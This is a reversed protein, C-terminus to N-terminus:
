DAASGSDRQESKSRQETSAACCTLSGREAMAARQRWRRQLTPAVIAVPVTAIAAAILALWLPDAIPAAFHGLCAITAAAMGVWAIQGALGSGARPVEPQEDVRRRPSSPRLPVPRQWQLQTLAALVTAALVILALETPV